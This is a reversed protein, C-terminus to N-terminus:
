VPITQSAPQRPMAAASSRFLKSDISGAKVMDSNGATCVKNSCAGAQNITEAQSEVGSVMFLTERSKDRHGMSSNLASLTGGLLNSSNGMPVGDALDAVIEVKPQDELEYDM